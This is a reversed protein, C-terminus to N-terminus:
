SQWYFLWPLMEPFFRPFDETTRSRHGKISYYKIWMQIQVDSTCTSEVTLAGTTVLGDSHKIIWGYMSCMCGVKEGHGEPWPRPPAALVVKKGAVTEVESCEWAMQATYDRWSNKLRRIWCLTCASLCVLMHTNVAGVPPLKTEEATSGSRNTHKREAATRKGQIQPKM